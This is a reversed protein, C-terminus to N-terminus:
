STIELESARDGCAVVRSWESLLRHGVNSYSQKQFSCWVSHNCIRFYTIHYITLLQNIRLQSCGKIPTILTELDPYKILNVNYLINSTGMLLSTSSCTTTFPHTHQPPISSIKECILPLTCFYLNTDTTNFLLTVWKMDLWTMMLPHCTLTEFNVVLKAFFVM